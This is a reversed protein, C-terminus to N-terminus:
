RQTCILPCFQLNPQGTKNICNQDIRCDFFVIPTPSPTPSAGSGGGAPTLTPIGPPLTPTSTPVQTIIVVPTAHPISFPPVPVSVEVNGNIIPFDGTLPAFGTVLIEISYNGVPLSTFPLNGSSDTVGNITPMPGTLKVSAGQYPTDGGDEQGSNNNDNYVHVYIAYRAPATTVTPTPSSGSPPTATPTPLPTGGACQPTQPTIGQCLAGAQDGDPQQDMETAQLANKVSECESSGSSYIDNCAQLMSNYMSKFNSTSNLYTTLAQYVVASSKQRGIGNILCGNFDEGDTTGDTMLYFAKNMIGSNIHVGCNDNTNRNCNNPSGTCYYNSSFLKDPQRHNRPISPPNSMSRIIGMVSEEGITWNNDIASGFIDSISENLAGSQNKYELGATNGTVTHTLEHGITDRAVTGPCFAMTLTTWDASANPCTAEVVSSPANVYANLPSGQDDPGDRQFNNFYYNYVEGYIDYARDVDAIGTPPSGEGRSLPCSTSGNCNHIKRNIEDQILDTSWVIRGAALDVYFIKSYFPLLNKSDIEVALTLYNTEDSSVGLLKLNIISKYAKSVKLEITRGEKQAESFTIEKAKEETIKQKTTEKTRVLNGSVSYIENKNRLHVALQAGYIPIENIKQEFIYHENTININRSKLFKDESDKKSRTLESNKEFDPPLLKTGNFSPNKNIFEKVVDSGTKNSKYIYGTDKQLIFYNTAKSSIVKSYDSLNQTNLVPNLLNYIVFFLVFIIVTSGFILVPFKIKKQYIFERLKLFSNQITM